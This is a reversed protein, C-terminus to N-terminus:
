TEERTARAVGSLRDMHGPCVSGDPQPFMCSMDVRSPEWTQHGCTDCKAAPPQDDRLHELWDAQEADAVLSRIRIAATPYGDSDLWDAVAILLQVAKAVEYASTQNLRPAANPDGVHHANGMLRCGPFRCARTM